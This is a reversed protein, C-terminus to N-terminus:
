AESPAAHAADQKTRRYQLLRLVVYAIMIGTYVVVALFAKSDFSFNPTVLILIIHLYTLVFFPYALIQVKKWTSSKMSKRIFNFSTVTLLALLIVLIFSVVFSAIENMHLSAFGELFRGFYSMFYNVVHGITLICAVISLEGRVPMLYKRVPSSAPFVGIFMVVTILGFGILGRQMYPYLAISLAPAYTFMIQSCFIACIVVAILYFVWPAKKLPTRFAVAFAISIILAIILEM